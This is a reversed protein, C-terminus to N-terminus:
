MGTGSFSALIEECYMEARVRAIQQNTKDVASEVKIIGLNKLELSLLVEKMNPSFYVLQGSREKDQGNMGRVVFDNHWSRLKQATAESMELVVNSIQVVGPTTQYDRASGVSSEVPPIKITLAEVKNVRTTDIGNITLRFNAPLMIKQQQQGPYQAKAGTGTTYQIYEPQFKLVIYAPEKSTGDAAPFTIETILANMFVLRQKEALSHDLAVIAGNKRIPQRKLAQSIWDYVGKSMSTGIFLTIEGFKPKGLHKRQVRDQGVPENIVDASIVGGDFAKVFGAKVGDLELMYNGSVYTREAAAFSLAPVLLILAALTAVWKMMGKM